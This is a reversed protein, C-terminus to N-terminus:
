GEPRRELAARIAASLEDLTFPKQIFGACGRDLIQQAQGNVSYGSSLLVRADPDIRRIGDFAEGGNVDPMIMDLVVLRIDSQHEGFTEVAERGGGATLVTYGLHELMGRGVDLIVEEDDVLLITEDGTQITETSDLSDRIEKDTAPLVLSVTTGEGPESDITILGGHNKAIGYASALGLGTGMGREKTTFFPEFARERVTEDMGRGTDSVTIRVSPGPQLELPKVYARDLEVNETTVSIEGGEPMAQWANIFVNLLLSEIQRRDVEAAHLEPQLSTVVRIEKKTRAFMAAVESLLRNMDTPVVQYTGGRAFGLLQRTLDSASKVAAEIGKVYRHHPHDRHIDLMMLSSHGQIAMLLNNFDHAIGGALSGIAQMKQAQLLQQELRRKETIDRVFEVIGTVESSDPSKIPFAFLEIWEIPSNAPGPVVDVEQRGSAMARLSPCPDCPQDRDHYCHHCKKGILPSHRAYWREMNQNVLVINLDTDLVCIGDQISNIVDELFEESEALAQQAQMRETIDELVGQYHTIAGDEDRRIITRDEIWVVRGDKSVIRYPEHTFEQRGEESGYREVESAVRELDDPHVVEEYAVSGDMLDSASHGFIQEVNDTVYEVPWGQRNQWLFAVVPSKSVINRLEEMRVAALKRETIDQIMAQKSMTGDPNRIPTNVIHYWRDDRPSQVEWIVKEGALVRDNVCWPCIDDRDHLVKYCLEGTADYGTREILQQNMFEIRYDQSCIYILGDFAEVIARYRVDSEGDTRAGAATSGRRTGRSNREADV